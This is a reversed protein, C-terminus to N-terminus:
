SEYTINAEPWQTSYHSLTRSPRESVKTYGKENMREEVIHIVNKTLKTPHEFLSRTMVHGHFLEMLVPSIMPPPPQVAKNKNMLYLFLIEILMRYFITMDQPIKAFSTVLETLESSDM